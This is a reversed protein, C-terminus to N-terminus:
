THLPSNANQSFLIYICIFNKSSQPCSTISFDLVSFQHLLFISKLKRFLDSCTKGPSGFAAERCAAQATIGMQACSLLVLQVKWGGSARGQRQQCVPTPPWLRTVLRRGMRRCNAASLRDAFNNELKEPM